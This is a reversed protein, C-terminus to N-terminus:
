ERRKKFPRKWFHDPGPGKALLRATLEMPSLPEADETEPAPLSHRDPNKREQTQSEIFPLEFAADMVAAFQVELRTADIIRDAIACKATIRAKDNDSLLAGPPLSELEAFLADRLTKINPMM